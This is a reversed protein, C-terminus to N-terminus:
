LERLSKHIGFCKENKQFHLATRQLVSLERDKFMRFFHNAETKIMPENNLTANPREKHFWEFQMIELNGNETNSM